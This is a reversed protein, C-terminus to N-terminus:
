YCWRCIGCAGAAFTGGLAPSPLEEWADEEPLYAWVTTANVAYYQFQRFHRSSAIFTGAAAATPAPTCFEWQKRDLIKRLNMTTAM